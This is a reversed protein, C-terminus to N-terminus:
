LRVNSAQLFRELARRPSGNLTDRLDRLATLLRERDAADARRLAVVDPVARAIALRRAMAETVDNAFATDISRGLQAAREPYRERVWKFSAVYAPDLLRAAVEEPTEDWAPRYNRGDVPGGWELFQTRLAAEVELVGGSWDRALAAEEAEADYSEPDSWWHAVSRQAARSAGLQRMPWSVYGTLGSRIGPERGRLAGLVLA